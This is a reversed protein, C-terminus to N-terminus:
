GVQREQGEWYRARLTKKDIKGLSTVALSDVFEIRKPAYLSGKHEKVLQVLDDATVTAGARRTVIAVVAEGWKPDPVGIVAVSAVGAHTSIVDEVDRSYINFGGSIVMDKKRDVIYLYGREDARAMDGTHLWGDKLTEASLEPLNLYRQMVHPARACLEGVEGAAVQQGDDDLLCLTTGATAQGCSAFLEPHKADHDARGLVSLPYGETQGYLQSFVPGLRELGEILRSPSMPSAGYLLLELSSLDARDMGPNDLLAYIMTPVLLTMNISNRAITEFIRDPVFGNMLYVTGGRTLVPQIKSGAVHTMPAVLLYRPNAPLEFDAMVNMLLSSYGTHDRAAGKSRGTTGGTYNIISLDDCFALDRPTCSGAREAAALLDQGFDAPGMTYVARLGPRAAALEGGRAGHVAADVILVDTDFDALQFLHDERSGIPHLWTIAMGNCLAAMGACWATALNSTLMCVRQGRQLGAQAYVSQMRGILEATARYSLTGGDWAFATRQPYRALARLLLTGLTPPALAPYTM